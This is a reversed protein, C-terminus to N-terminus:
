QTSCRQFNEFRANLLSVRDLILRHSSGYKYLGLIFVLLPPGTTYIYAIGYARLLSCVVLFM